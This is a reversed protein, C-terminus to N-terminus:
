LSKENLERLVNQIGVERFIGNETISRIKGEIHTTFKMHMAQFKSKNRRSPIWQEPM